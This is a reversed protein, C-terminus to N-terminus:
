LNRTRNLKRLIHKSPEGPCASVERIVQAVYIGYLIGLESHAACLPLIADELQIFLDKPIHRSVQELVSDLSAQADLIM